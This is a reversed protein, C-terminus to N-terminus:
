KAAAQYKAFLERAIILRQIQQTGEYLQFIKADRYLKSVVSGSNFGLGGYVQIADSANKVATDGALCKAISAYYTNRNGADLETAARWVALRSTEVGVAMDAIINSVSQHEAIPKGFTKRQLAYLVAEHLARRALGLAGAAVSPRTHDFAGMALKFGGGEVGVVNSAPVRVDEFTIGRTDSCRQGMNDEKKGKTIGPTDSEVIFGTFARGTPTNADGTRALVFYWNAVGGGTIWMKSGNIIYEDGKKVATTKLGAVDSGAGPETVCYAALLPAETMRGLYKKKLVESAGLIVPAEALANAELATSMGTCGFALEECILVGDMSGLGLGDYQKPIYLNLLGNEWAKKIIEHPYEGTRDHYEAKPIIENAAFKRAVDQFELQEPTLNFSVGSAVAAAAEAAGHAGAAVSPAAAATMFTRRAVTSLLRSALM